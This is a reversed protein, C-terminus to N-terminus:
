LYGWIMCLTSSKVKKRKGIRSELKKYWNISIRKDVTAHSLFKLTTRLQQSNGKKKCEKNLREPLTSLEVKLIHRYNFWHERGGLLGYQDLVMNTSAITIKRLDSWHDLIERRAEKRPMLTPATTGQGPKKKLIIHGDGIDAPFIAQQCTVVLDRGLIKGWGFTAAKELCIGGGPTSKCWWDSGIWCPCGPDVVDQSWCLNQQPRKANSIIGRGLGAKRVPTRTLTGWYVDYRCVEREPATEQPLQCTSQGM